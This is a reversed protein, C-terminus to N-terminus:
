DQLRKRADPPLKEIADSIAAAMTTQLAETRRRLETFADDVAKRDFKEARLLTTLEQRQEHVAKNLQQLDDVHARMSDLVIQRNTRDLPELLHELARGAMPGLQQMYAPQGFWRDIDLLRGAVLGGLFVNAILSAFLALTVWRRRAARELLPWNGPTQEGVM